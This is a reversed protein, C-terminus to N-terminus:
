VGAKRLPIGLFGQPRVLLFLILILFVIAEQWQTGLTWAGLHQALGLLLGGLLTGPVSGVGGVIMAVVGTIMANLGMTPTMDVDLAVLNAALGALASGLAFAGLIVMDTDVGRVRALDPDSAVARMMKGFSTFQLMAAVLAFAVVSVGVTWLQIPTVRAGFLAVGKAVAIASLHQTADGFMMSILNQLVVYLGLSALLLVLPTTGRRRLPRYISVELGVGLVTAMLVALPLAMWLPFELTVVSLYGFYAGWAYVAGHAFHFFRTPTYILNVSLAILGYTFGSILGNILFQDM